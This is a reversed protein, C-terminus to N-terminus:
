TRTQLECGYSLQISHQGGFASTVPEFGTPHALVELAKSAKGVGGLFGKDANHGRFRTSPRERGTRAKHTEVGRAGWLKGRGILMFRLPGAAICGVSDFPIASLFLAATNPFVLPGTNMPMM